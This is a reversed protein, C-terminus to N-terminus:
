KKKTIKVEKTIKDIAEDVKKVDIKEELKEKLTPLKSDKLSM